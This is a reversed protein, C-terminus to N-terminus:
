RGRQRERLAENLREIVAAAEEEYRGGLRGLEQAYRRANAPLYRQEFFRVGAALSEAYLERAEPRGLDLGLMKHLSELTKEMVKDSPTSAIMRRTANRLREFYFPEHDESRWALIWYYTADGWDEQREAAEAQAIDPTRRRAAQRANLARAEREGAALQFRADLPEDGHMMWYDDTPAEVEERFWRIADQQVTVEGHRAQSKYPWRVTVTEGDRQVWGLLAEGSKLIVLGPRREGPTPTPLAGFQRAYAGPDASRANLWKVQQRPFAQVPGSPPVVLVEEGAEVVAGRLVKGSELVVLGASSEANYGRVQGRPVLTQGGDRLVLLNAGREVVVGRLVTAPNGALVVVGGPGATTEDAPSPVSAKSSANAAALLAGGIVVLSLWARNRGSEDVHAHGGHGM